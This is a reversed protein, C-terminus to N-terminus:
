VHKFCGVMWVVADYGYISATQSVVSDGVEDDDTVICDQGSELTGPEREIARQRWQELLATATRVSAKELLAQDTAALRDSLLSSNGSTALRPIAASPM